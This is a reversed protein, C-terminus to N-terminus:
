AAHAPPSAAPLALESGDPRSSLSGFDGAYYGNHPHSHTRTYTGTEEEIIMSAAMVNEQTGHPPNALSLVYSDLHHDRIV